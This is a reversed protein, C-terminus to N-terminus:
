EEGGDYCDPYIIVKYYFITMSFFMVCICTCTLLTPNILTHVCM